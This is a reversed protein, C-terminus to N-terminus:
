LWFLTFSYPQLVYSQSLTSVSLRSIGHQGNSSSSTKFMSLLCTTQLVSTVMFSDYEHQQDILWGNAFFLIIYFSFSYYPLIEKSLVCCTFHTPLIGAYRFTFHLTPNIRHLLDVTITTFIHTHEFHLISIITNQKQKKIM